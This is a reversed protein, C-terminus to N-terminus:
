CAAVRSEDVLQRFQPGVVVDVTGRQRTDKIRQFDGTHRLVLQADAMSNSGYRLEGRGTADRSLSRVTAPYFLANLHTRFRGLDADRTLVHGALEPRAATRM